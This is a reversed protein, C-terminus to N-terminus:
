YQHWAPRGNEWRPGVMGETLLRQPLFRFHSSSPVWLRAFPSGRFPVRCNPGCDVRRHFLTEGCPPLLSYPTLKPSPASLFSNEPRPESNRFGKGIQSKYGEVWERLKQLRDLHPTLFEHERSDANEAGQKGKQKGGSNLEGLTSSNM